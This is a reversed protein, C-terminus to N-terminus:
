AKKQVFRELRINKREGQPKWPSPEKRTKLEKEKNFQLIEKFKRSFSGKKSPTSCTEGNAAQGRLSECHRYTM